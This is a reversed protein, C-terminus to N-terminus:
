RSGPFAKPLRSHSRIHRTADRRPVCFGFYVLALGLSLLLAGSVVAINAAGKPGWAPAGIARYLFLAGFSILLLAITFCFRRQAANM